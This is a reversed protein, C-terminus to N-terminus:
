KIDGTKYNWNKGEGTLELYMNEWDLKKLFGAKILLKIDEGLLEEQIPNYGQMLKTYDISDEQRLRRLLRLPGSERSVKERAKNIKHTLENM